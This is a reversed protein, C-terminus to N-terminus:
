FRRGHRLGPLSGRRKHLNLDAPPFELWVVAVRVDSETGVHCLQVQLTADRVEHDLLSELVLAVLYDLQALDGLLDEFLLTEESAFM